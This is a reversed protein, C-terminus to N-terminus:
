RPDIFPSAPGWVLEGQGLLRQDTRWHARLFKKGDLEVHNAFRDFSFLIPPETVRAFQQPQWWVFRPHISPPMLAVPPGGGEAVGKYLGGIGFDQRLTADVITVSGASQDFDSPIPEFQDEPEIPETPIVPPLGSDPESPLLVTPPQELARERWIETEKRAIEAAIRQRDAENEADRMSQILQDREAFLDDLQTRQREIEGRLGEAGIAEIAVPQQVVDRTTRSVSRSGNVSAREQPAFQMEDLDLRGAAAVAADGLLEVTVDGRDKKTAIGEAGRILNSFNKAWGGGNSSAGLKYGAILTNVSSDDSVFQEEGQQNSTHSYTHRVVIRPAVQSTSKSAALPLTQRKAFVGKRAPVAAAPEVADTSSTTNYVPRTLKFGAFGNNVGANTACGCLMAVASLITICTLKKM